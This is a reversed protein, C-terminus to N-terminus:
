HLRIAEILYQNTIEQSERLKGVLQKTHIFENNNTKERIVQEFHNVTVMNKLKRSIEKLSEVDNNVRELDHNAQL